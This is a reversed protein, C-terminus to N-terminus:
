DVLVWPEQADIDLELAEADVLVGALQGLAMLVEGVVRPHGDKSSWQGLVHLHVTRDWLSFNWHSPTSVAHAFTDEEEAAEPHIGPAIWELECGRDGVSVFRKGISAIERLAKRAEQKRKEAEHPTEGSNAALHEMVLELTVDSLSTTMSM